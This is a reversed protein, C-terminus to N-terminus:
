REDYETEENPETLEEFANKVWKDLHPDIQEKFINYLSLSLRKSNHFYLPNFYFQISTTQESEITVKAIIGYELLKKILERGARERLGTLTVIEHYTMARYRGKTRKILLNTNIQINSQMRYIKGLESDNFAEPIRIDSFIRSYNKRYFLLYGDENFYNVGEKKQNLIEGTNM